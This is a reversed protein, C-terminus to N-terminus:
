QETEADALSATAEAKLEQLFAAREEANLPRFGVTLGSDAVELKVVQSAITGRGLLPPFLVLDEVPERGMLRLLQRDIALDIAAANLGDGELAANEINAPMRARIAGSAKDHFIELAKDPLAFSGAYAGEFRLRAVDADSLDPKFRLSVVADQFSRMKGAMVIQGDVVALRPDALHKEFAPKYDNDTLWKDFYTDLEVGTFTVVAVRPEDALSEDNAAAPDDEGAAAATAGGLSDQFALFKREVSAIAEDREAGTLRERLYFDPVGSIGKWVYFGVGVGAALLLLFAIGLWKLLRRSKPKADTM